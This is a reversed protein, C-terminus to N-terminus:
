NGQRIGRHGFLEWGTSQDTSHVAVADGRLYTAMSRGRSEVVPRGQYNTGPHQVRALDLFTPTLDMVTTFASSIEQQRQFGPYTIFAVVRIGGETTFAKYLRAPATHFDTFRLGAYALNDLHPTDIEGGFAGIDSFGLDDAVIVLFNPRKGQAPFQQHSPEAM